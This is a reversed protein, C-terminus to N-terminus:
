PPFPYERFGGEPAGTLSLAKLQGSSLSSPQTDQTNPPQHLRANTPDRKNVAVAGIQYFNSDLIIEEYFFM